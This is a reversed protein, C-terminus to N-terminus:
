SLEKELRRRARHLRVTFTPLSIGLSRAAADPDLGEWAVLMLLERDDPRLGALARRAVSADTVTEATDPNDALPRLRQRLRQRRDDGRWSNALLRRAVAYLWPLPEEPVEDLRRWAVEFTAAAVDAATGPDVRRQGYALVAPHYAAFLAEFHARRQDEVVALREV